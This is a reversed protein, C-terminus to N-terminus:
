LRDLIGQLLYTAAAKDDVAQRQKRNLGADMLVRSVARTSLREDQLFVPCEILAELPKLLKMVMECSEAAVGNMQLPWGSVIGVINEKQIYHQIYTTDIQINRRTYVERASAIMRNKDSIAFGVRVQGVDLGLLSGTSPITSRFENFDTTIM